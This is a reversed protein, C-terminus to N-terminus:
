WTVPETFAIMGPPLAWDIEVIMRVGAGAWPHAHILDFGLPRQPWGEIFFSFVLLGAIGLAYLANIITLGQIVPRAAALAHTSTRTM